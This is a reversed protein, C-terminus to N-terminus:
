VVQQLTCQVLGLASHDAAHDDVLAADRVDHELDHRLVEDMRLVAMQKLRDASEPLVPLGNVGDRHFVNDAEPIM